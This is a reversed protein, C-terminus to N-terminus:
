PEAPDLLAPEAGSPEGPRGSLTLDDLLLESTTLVDEYSAAPGDLTQVTRVSIGPKARLLAELRDIRGQVTTSAPLRGTVICIVEM